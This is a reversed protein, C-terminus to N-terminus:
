LTKVQVEVVFLQALAQWQQFAFPVHYHQPGINSDVTANRHHVNFATIAGFCLV